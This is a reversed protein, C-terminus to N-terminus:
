GRWHQVLGVISATLAVSAYEPPLYWLGAGMATLLGVLLCAAMKPTM